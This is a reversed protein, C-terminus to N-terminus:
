RCSIRPQLFSAGYPPGPEPLSKLFRDAFKLAITLSFVLGILRLEANGPTTSPLSTLQHSRRLFCSISGKLATPVLSLELDHNVIFVITYVIIGYSIRIPIFGLISHIDLFVADVEIIGM